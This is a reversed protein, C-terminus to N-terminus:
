PGVPRMERSFFPTCVTTASPRGDFAGVPPLPATPGCLM